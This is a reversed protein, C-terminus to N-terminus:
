SSELEWLALPLFSKLPLSLFCEPHQLDLHSWCLKVIIAAPYLSWSGNLHTKEQTQLWIICIFKMNFVQGAAHCIKVNVINNAWTNMTSIASIRLKTLLRHIKRQESGHFQLLKKAQCHTQGLRQDHTQKQSDQPGYKPNTSSSCKPTWVLESDTFDYFGKKSM